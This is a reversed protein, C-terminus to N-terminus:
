AEIPINIIFRSGKEPESEITIQWHHAEVCLKVYYLGLGIGKTQKVVAPNRYFKDFIHKQTEEDMGMGNDEVVLQLKKKDSYTFVNIKKHNSNNYRIANDFMNNLMTTLWFADVVITDKEASNVYTILVGTDTLKLRYDLLIEDLLLHLSHKSKNLQLNQMGTIDLVQEFLKKLREAQRQIIETLSAIKSKDEAVRDMQLNKNAVIIAALPTHFEHTISNVFDSKMDAIKKQKVWNRFTSYFMLLVALVSCISLIFTPMMQRVIDLHRNATDVHLSFVMRYSYAAPSSVTLNAILTQDNLEKLTGGIYASGNNVSEIEQDANKKSYLTVYKNAEFAVDLLEVTLAYVLKSKLHHKQQIAALVSDFNNEKQLARFVKATLQRRFQDFGEPKMKYLSELEAMNDYVFRDAIAGGGPYLKDNRISQIYEEKIINKEAIFYHESKFKYTNYLLFFQVASLVLLSIISIAKYRNILSTRMCYGSQLLANKDGSFYPM